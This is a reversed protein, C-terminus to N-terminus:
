MMAGLPRFAALLHDRTAVRRDLGAVRQGHAVDRDTRSHVADLHLRALARLDRAGGAGAHLQDRTFADVGRQTKAGALHTANRGLAAGRDTFNAVDLVVELLQALSARAAPAADLRRDAARRHVRDVMRVATALGLGALAVRM